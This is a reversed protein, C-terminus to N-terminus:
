HQYGQKLRADRAELLLRPREMSTRVLDGSPLASLERCANGLMGVQMWSALSLAAEARSGAFADVQFSTALENPVAVKAQEGAMCQKMPALLKSANPTARINLSTAPPLRLTFVVRQNSSESAPNLEFPPAHQTPQTFAPRFFLESLEFGADAAM